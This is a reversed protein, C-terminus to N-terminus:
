KFAVYKKSPDLTSQIIEYTTYAFWFPVTLSVIMITLFTDFRYMRMAITIASVSLILFYVGLITSLILDRRTKIIPYLLIINILIYLLIGFLYLYIEYSNRLLGCYNSVLLCTSYYWTRVYVESGTFFLIGLLTLVIILTTSIYTLNFPRYYKFINILRGTISSIALTYLIFYLGWAYLGDSSSSSRTYITTIDITVYYYVVLLSIIILAYAIVGVWELLRSKQTGSVYRNALHEPLTAIYNKSFNYKQLQTLQVLSDPLKKLKNHSINLERLNRLQVISEPLETISNEAVGLHTLNSLEDIWEPIETLNNNSIVLIKLQKLSRIEDPFDTLYNSDLNLEQLQELKSLWEPAMKLEELRLDISSLFKTHGSSIFSEMFKLGDRTVNVHKIFGYYLRGFDLMHFNKETIGYIKEICQWELKDLREKLEEPLIPNGSKLEIEIDIIEARPDQKEALYHSLEMLINQDYADS